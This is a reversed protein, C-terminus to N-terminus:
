VYNGRDVSVIESCTLLRNTEVLPVSKTGQSKPVSTIYIYIYIYICNLHFDTKLPNIGAGLM